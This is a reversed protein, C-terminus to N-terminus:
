ALVPTPLPSRSEGEPLTLDEIQELIESANVDRPFVLNCTLITGGDAAHLEFRPLVFRYAGFAAWEEEPRRLPDFRAGGYYRAGSGASDPLSALLKHLSLDGGSADAERLDAVGVAAVGGRDERGSWYTKPFM